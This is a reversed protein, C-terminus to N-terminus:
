FVSSQEFEEESKASEDEKKQLLDLYEAVLPMVRNLSKMSVLHDKTISSEFRWEAILALELRLGEPIFKKIKGNLNILKLLSSGAQYHVGNLRLQHYLAHAMTQHILLAPIYLEGEDEPPVELMLKACKLDTQARKLLTCYDNM